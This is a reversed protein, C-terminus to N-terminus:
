RLSNGAILQDIQDDTIDLGEAQATEIIARVTPVDLLGLSLTRAAAQAYNDILNFGEVRDARVTRTVKHIFVALIRDPHAAVIDQYVEPDVHSTDGFLVFRQDPNAQLITTIDAIKEQRAAWPRGTYGTSIPGPPVGNESLWAPVGQVREEDRATVFHLDGLNGGNRLELARYLAAVGPYPPDPLDDAQPPIVTKDLDSIIGLERGGDADGDEPAPRHSKLINLASAGVYYLRSLEMVSAIPRASMISAVARRNLALDIDLMQRSATNVLTLTAEAQDVSFPVRDYTGLLEDGEPVLAAVHAYAVLRGMATPGVYRVADVEDITDFRDDDRTGAVGDDGNRHAILGTAARRNMRADIDLTQLSTQRDNLLRLVGVGEPTGDTLFTQAEGFDAKGDLGAAEDDDGVPIGAGAGAGGCACLLAVTLSAVSLELTRRIIM